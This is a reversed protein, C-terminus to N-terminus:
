ENHVSATNLYINLLFAVRVITERAAHPWESNVPAPATQGAPATGEERPMRNVRQLTEM